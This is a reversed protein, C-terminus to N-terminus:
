EDEKVDLNSLFKKIDQIDYDTLPGGTTAGEMLLVIIELIVVSKDVQAPGGDRTYRRGAPTDLPARGARGPGAVCDFISSISLAIYSFGIGVM